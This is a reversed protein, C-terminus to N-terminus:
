GHHPNALFQEQNTVIQSLPNTNLTGNGHQDSFGAISHTFLAVVHDLGPPSTPPTPPSPNLPPDVVITGGTADKSVVWTANTFNGSLHLSVNQSGNTVNLKGTSPDYSANTQGPMFKLDALDISNKPTLGVITGTFPTTTLSGFELVGKAARSLPRAARL